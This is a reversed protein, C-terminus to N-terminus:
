RFREEVPLDKMTGSETTGDAVAKFFNAQRMVEEKSFPSRFATLRSEDVSLHVKIWRQRKCMMILGINIFEDREVRPLYRIVAYEYLHNEQTTQM